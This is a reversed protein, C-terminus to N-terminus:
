PTPRQGPSKTRKKSSPTASPPKAPQPEPALGRALAEGIKYQFALVDDSKTFPLRGTIALKAVGIAEVLFMLALMRSNGQQLIGAAQCEEVHRILIGFAREGAENTEPYEYRRPSDYIVKFHEPNRLAFQIFGTGSLGFKEYATKGPEMAAVMQETMRNYGETAVAALLDNKDRFHRYAASHSVGALRAVERVTFAEAGKTRILDLAADLLAQKLHGHHYPRKSKM